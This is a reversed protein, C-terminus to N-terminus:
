VMGLRPGSGSPGPMRLAPNKLLGLETTQRETVLAFASAAGPPVGAFVRGGAHSGCRLSAMDM